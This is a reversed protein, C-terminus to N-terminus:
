GELKNKGSMWIGANLMEETAMFVVVRVACHPQAFGCPSPCPSMAAITRPVM